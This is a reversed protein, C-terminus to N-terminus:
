ELDQVEKRVNKEISKAVEIGNLIVADSTHLKLSKLEL